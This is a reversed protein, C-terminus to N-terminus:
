DTPKISPAKDFLRLIGGRLLILLSACVVMAGMIPIAALLGSKLVSNMIDYTSEILLALATTVTIVEWNERLRSRNSDLKNM